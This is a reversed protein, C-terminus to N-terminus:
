SRKRRTLDVVDDQAHRLNTVLEALAAGPLKATPGQGIGLAVVLVGDDRILGATVDVRRGVTDLTWM